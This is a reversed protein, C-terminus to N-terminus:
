HLLNTKLLIIIILFFFLGGECLVLAKNSEMGIKKREDISVSGCGKEVSYMM